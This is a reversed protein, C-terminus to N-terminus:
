ASKKLFNISRIVANKSHGTYYKDGVQYPNCVEGYRFFQKVSQLNAQWASDFEKKPTGNALHCSRWCPCEVKNPKNILVYTAVGAVVIGAVSGAFKFFNKM